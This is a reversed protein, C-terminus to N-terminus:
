FSIFLYLYLRIAAHSDCVSILMALTSNWRTVMIQVLKLRLHKIKTPNTETQISALSEDINTQNIDEDYYLNAEKRLTESLKESLCTSHKFTGVLHRCKALIPAIKEDEFVEKVILNLLHALCNMYEYLM